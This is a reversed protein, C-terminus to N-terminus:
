TPYGKFRKFISFLTLLQERSLPTHDSAAHTRVEQSLPFIARCEAETFLGKMQKQFQEENVSVRLNFFHSFIGRICELQVGADNSTLARQEFDRITKKLDNSIKQRNKNKKWACLGLVTMLGIPPLIYLTLIIAHPINTTKKLKIPRPAANQLKLIGHTPFKFNSANAKTQSVDVKISESSITEYRHTQPIFSIIKFPPLHFSGPTLAAIKFRYQRSSVIEGDIIKEEALGKQSSLLKFNGTYNELSYPALQVGAIPVRGTLTVDVTLTDGARIQANTPIAKITFYGVNAPVFGQPHPQPPAIVEVIQKAHSIWPKSALFPIQVQLVPLPLKGVVQPTVDYVAFPERTYTKGSFYAHSPAPPQSEIVYWDKFDPEKVDYYVQGLGNAVYVNYVIRLPEGLYIQHEPVEMDIFMDEPPLPISPTNNTANVAANQQKHSQALLPFPSGLLICVTAPFLFKGIKIKRQKM